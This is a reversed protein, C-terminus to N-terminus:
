SGSPPFETTVSTASGGVSKLNEQAQTVANQAQTMIDSYPSTTEKEIMLKLAVGQAALAIAEVNRLYDTADQVAFAAAQAVKQYAISQAEKEAYQLVEKNTTNVAAVIQANLAGSGGTPAPSDEQGDNAAKQEDESKGGDDGPTKDQKGQAM